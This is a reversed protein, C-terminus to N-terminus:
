PADTETLFRTYIWGEEQTDPNAVQIWNGDRGKVRLKTGKQVVKLIKGDGSADTRMNVASAVEVWQDKSTLESAAAVLRGLPGPEPEQRAAKPQEV